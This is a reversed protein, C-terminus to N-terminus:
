NISIHFTSNGVTTESDAYDSALDAQDEGTSGGQITQEGEETQEGDKDDDRDGDKDEEAAM